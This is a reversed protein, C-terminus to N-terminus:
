VVSKRDSQPALDFGDLPRDLGVLLTCPNQLLGSRTPACEVTEDSFHDFAMNSLMDDVRLAARVSGLGQRSVLQDVDNM